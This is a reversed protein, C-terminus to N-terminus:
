QAIKLRLAQPIRPVYARLRPALLEGYQRGRFQQQRLMRLAEELDYVYNIMAGAGKIGEESEPVNANLKIDGVIVGNSGHFRQVGDRGTLLHAIALMRKTDDDIADLDFESDKWATRLSRLPSLTSTIVDAPLRGTQILESVFPFLGGILIEGSGKLVPTQTGEIKINTISYFILSRTIADMTECGQQLIGHVNGALARYDLGTVGEAGVLQIAPRDPFREAAATIRGCFNSVPLGLPDFAWRPNLKGLEHLMTAAVTEITGDISYITWVGGKLFWQNRGFHSLQFATLNPPMLNGIVKHVNSSSDVYLRPEPGAKIGDDLKTLSKVPERDGQRPAQPQIEPLEGEAGDVSSVSLGIVGENNRGVAIDPSGQDIFAKTERIIASKGIAQSGSQAPAPFPQGFSM